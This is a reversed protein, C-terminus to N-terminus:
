WMYGIVSVYLGQQDEAGAIDGLNAWAATVNVQKNPFWAIFLDSWDQEQAFALNDPKQRYEVGIALHRNLLLALSGEALWDYGSNLDGGFGLLGLQNANSRRLTINWFLNYGKVLGLHVKSAALYWDTGSRSDDAGVLRAIAGDDLRKHQAGLSLQPWPTYVLDGLLRFKVGLIDQEIETNLQKLRFRHHAASVEVRDYLGLAVGYSDLRYEDVNVSTFFASASTEDRSDYGSLVAWPVIGGGAAGEASSTAATAILKGTGAQLCASFLLGLIVLIQKM